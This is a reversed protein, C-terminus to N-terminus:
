HTQAFFGWQLSFCPRCHPFPSGSTECIEDRANLAQGVVYHARASTDSGIQQAGYLQKACCFASSSVIKSLVYMNQLLYVGM